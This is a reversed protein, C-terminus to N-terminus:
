QLEPWQWKGVGGSRWGPRPFGGGCAVKTPGTNGATCLPAISWASHPQVCQGKATDDPLLKVHGPLNVMKVGTLQDELVPIFHAGDAQFSKNEKFNPVLYDAGKM